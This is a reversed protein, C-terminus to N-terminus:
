NIKRTSPRIKAAIARSCTSSILYRWDDSTVNECFFVSRLSRWSVFKEKTIFFLIKFAWRSVNIRVLIIIKNHNRPFKGITKEKLRREVRKFTAGRRNPAVENAQDDIEGNFSFASWFCTFIFQKWVLTWIEFEDYYLQFRITEM